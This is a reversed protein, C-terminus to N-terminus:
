LLGLTQATFHWANWGQQQYIAYAGRVNNDVDLWYERTHGWACVNIQYYGVSDESVIQVGRIYGIPVNCRGGAQDLTNREANANWGASEPYAVRAADSWLERPWYRQIADSLDAPALGFETLVRGNQVSTEMHGHGPPRQTPVGPDVGISAIIARIGAEVLAWQATLRDSGTKRVQLGLKGTM